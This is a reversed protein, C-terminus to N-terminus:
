CSASWSSFLSLLGLGVPNVQDRRRDVVGPHAVRAGDVHASCCPGRGARARAGAGATAEGDIQPEVLPPPSLFGSSSFLPTHQPWCHGTISSWVSCSFVSQARQTISWSRLGPGTLRMSAGMRASPPPKPRSPSPARQENGLATNNAVLAIRPHGLRVDLVLQHPQEADFLYNIEM